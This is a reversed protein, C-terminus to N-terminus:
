PKVHYLDKLTGEHMSELATGVSVAHLKLPILKKNM